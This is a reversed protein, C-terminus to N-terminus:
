FSPSEILKSGEKEPTDLLTQPRSFENPRKKFFGVLASTASYAGLAVGNSAVVLTTQITTEKLLLRFGRLM